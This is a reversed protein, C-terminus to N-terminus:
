IRVAIYFANSLVCAFAAYIKVMKLLKEKRKALARFAIEEDAYLDLSM